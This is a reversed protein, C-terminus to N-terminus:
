PQRNMPARVAHGNLVPIAPRRILHFGDLGAIALRQEMRLDVLQDLRHRGETLLRPEGPILGEIVPGLVHLSHQGGAPLLLLLIARLEPSQVLRKATRFTGLPTTAM